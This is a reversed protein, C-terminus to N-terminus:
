KYYEYVRESIRPEMASCFSIQKIWNNNLDYEYEYSYIINGSDWEIVNGKDDYKYSWKYDINNDPNFNTRITNNGKIDYELIGKSKISGDSNYSYIETNNGENDYKFIIKSEINNESDYRNLEVRNENDDYLSTTKEVFNGDIDYKNKEIRNDNDDYVNSFKNDEFGGKIEIIDGHKNFVFSTGEPMLKIKELKGHKEETIYNELKELKGFKEVTPYRYVTYSKIKGNLNNLKLESFKNSENTCGIISICFFLSLSIRKM